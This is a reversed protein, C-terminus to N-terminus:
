LYIIVCKVLFLFYRNLYTDLLIQIEIEEETPIVVQSINDKVDMNQIRHELNIKVRDEYGSYTHIVYWNQEEM